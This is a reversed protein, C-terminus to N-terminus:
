PLVQTRARQAPRPDGHSPALAQLYPALVQDEAHRDDMFRLCRASAAAWDPASGALRELAGAMAELGSVTAGLGLSAVLRDPDFFAVVPSGHRWAQLYTNPFGEVDSTNLVVRAREFLGAVEHYPVRGLFALNPLAAAAEAVQAHLAAHGPQAGGAMCFRLRPLRRALELVTEPHKLPLFNAVWLVDIDREAFGLCRRAPDVLMGAVRSPVGYHRQLAAVQQRTQALRVDAHRLGYAYLWRDRAHRILSRAPDCDTDSAVRFVVRRGHLAAFLAVIGVQPGAISVYYVDADARALAAWLKTLRPHVFRLVPWGADLGHAKFVRIGDVVLGDAQGYDAVVMRVDLGRRALARALLTQQVQEGGIGESAFTPSLVPLNQLGVFCIRPQSLGQQRSAAAASPMSM